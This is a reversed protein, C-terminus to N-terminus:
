EQRAAAGDRKKLRLKGPLLATGFPLAAFILGAFAATNIDVAIFALTAVIGANLSLIVSRPRPTKSAFTALVAPLFAVLASFAAIIGELLDGLLIAALALVAFLALVLFQLRRMSLRSRELGSMLPMIFTDVTSMIVAILMVDAFWGFDAPMASRLTQTLDGSFKQSIGLFAISLYCLLCLPAAIFYGTRATNLDRATVVRQWNDVALVASVPIFAWIGILLPWRYPGLDLFDRAPLELGPMAASAIAIIGLLILGAQFIDTRVAIRYGGIATYSGTIAAAAMVSWNFSIGTLAQFLASLALLQVAARLLFVFAVPIWVLVPSRVKHAVALLDILGHVGHRESVRRLAPALWACLLLGLTYAFAISLGIVPSALSFLGIGIFTGVGINGCIIGAVTAVLGTRGSNYIFDERSTGRSSILAYTIPGGVALAILIIHAANVFNM